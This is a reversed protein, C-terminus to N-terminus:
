YHKLLPTSVWIRCCRQKQYSGSNNEGQDNFSDSKLPKCLAMSVGRTVGWVKQSKYWFEGYDIKEIIMRCYKNDWCEAGCKRKGYM